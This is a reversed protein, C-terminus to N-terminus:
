TQPLNKGGPPLNSPFRLWPTEALRLSSVGTPPLSMELLVNSGSREDGARWGMATDQLLCLVPVRLKEVRSAALVHPM